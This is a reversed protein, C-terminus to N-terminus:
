GIFRHPLDVVIELLFELADAAPASPPPITPKGTAGPAGAIPTKRGLRQQVRPPAINTADKRRDQPDDTKHRARRELLDNPGYCMHEVGSLDDVDDFEADRLESLTVDHNGCAPPCDLTGLV